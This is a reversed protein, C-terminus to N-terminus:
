ASVTDDVVSVPGDAAVDIGTETATLENLRQRLTADLRAVAADRQDILQRVTRVLRTGAAQEAPVGIKVLASKSM